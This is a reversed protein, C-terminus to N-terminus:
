HFSLGFTVGYMCLYLDLNCLTSSSSPFREPCSPRWVLGPRPSSKGSSDQELEKCLYDTTFKHYNMQSSLVFASIKSLTFAGVKWTCTCESFGVLENHLHLLLNWLDIKQKWRCILFWLPRFQHTGIEYHNMKNIMILICASDFLINFFTSM